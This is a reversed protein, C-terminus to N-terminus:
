SVDVFGFAYDLLCDVSTQKPLVERSWAEPARLAYSPSPLFSRCSGPSSHSTLSTSYPATRSPLSPDLDSHGLSRHKWNLAPTVQLHHHQHKWMTSHTM